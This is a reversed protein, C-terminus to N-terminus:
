CLCSIYLSMKSVMDLIRIRLWFKDFVEHTIESLPRGAAKYRAELYYRTYKQKTEESLDMKPVNIVTMM